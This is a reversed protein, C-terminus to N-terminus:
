QLRHKKNQQHNVVARMAIDIGKRKADWGLVLCLLEDDKIGLRKRCEERSESVEINRKLSIGNPIHWCRKKLFLYTDKKFGMVTVVHINLLRYVLSLVAFKVRQIKDNQYVNFDMHDHVIVEINKFKSHNKILVNRFMSFHTHILNINYKSVIDSLQNSIEQETTDYYDILVAELELREFWSLWSYTDDNIPKAFVYVVNDGKNKLYEGFEILSAIFNGSNKAAYDASILINM